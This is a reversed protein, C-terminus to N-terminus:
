LYMGDTLAVMRELNPLFESLYRNDLEFFTHKTGTLSSLRQAIVQDACGNVGLTYTTLAPARGDVASLIARSDLGGSLALGYAHNGSFGREVSRVFEGAVEDFFQDKTGTWPVFCDSASVYRQVRVEGTHWSYSLASGPPVLEIGRALTKTGMQFGFTLCDAVAATDLSKPAEGSRLIARLESAFVLGADTKTWYLPYSGTRDTVLTIT